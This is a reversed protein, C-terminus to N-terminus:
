HAPAAGEPAGKLAEIMNHVAQIQHGNRTHYNMGTYGWWDWCSNPNVIWSSSWPFFSAGWRASTQPYLVILHNSAAWRNYGAGEVFRQGIENANQRCGHFAVHVKCGGQHCVKPVYAYGETAMSIDIPSLSNGVYRSQDFRIIEGEKTDGPPNLPGILYNLLQGSADFDECRNIYPTKSTECPNPNPDVVSIMAHGANPLKVYHVGGEPIIKQYFVALSDMVLPSVTSDKGGTMLWVRSRKLNEEADIKGAKSLQEVFKLTEDVPPPMKGSTPEMCNYMARSSSGQACYYPGGALIGAGNVQSSYAVHFQVAMFAGSSLGSVTVQSVDAGLRPLPPAAVLATTASLLLLACVRRLYPYFVM